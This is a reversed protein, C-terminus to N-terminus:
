CLVTFWSHKLLNRFNIKFFSFLIDSSFSLHVLFGVKQIKRYHVSNRNREGLQQTTSMQYWAVLATVGRKEPTENLSWAPKCVEPRSNGILVPIQQSARNELQQNLYPVTINEKHTHSWDSMMDSEKRGWSSYGALSRQGHFKEPLFVPTRQWKRGWPIRRIWPDFRSRKHKRCHCASEEGSHWRPPGYKTSIWRCLERDEATGSLTYSTYPPERVTSSGHAWREIGIQCWPEGPM